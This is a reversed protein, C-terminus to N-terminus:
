LTIEQEELLKSEIGLISHLWHRAYSLVKFFTLTAKKFMM